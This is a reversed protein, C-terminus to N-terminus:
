PHHLDKPLSPAACEDIRCNVNKSFFFLDFIRNNKNVIKQLETLNAKTYNTYNSELFQQCCQRSIKNHKRQISM